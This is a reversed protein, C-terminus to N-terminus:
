QYMGNKNEGVNPNWKKYNRIWNRFASLWNKFKTGKSNHHDLFKAFEEKSISEEKCIELAYTKLLVLYEAKLKNAEVAKQLSFLPQKKSKTKDQEIGDCSPAFTSSIYKDAKPTFCYAPESNKDISELLGAADLEGLANALTRSSIKFRPIQKLIYNKYLVFYNKGDVVKITAYSLRSLQYIAEFIIVSNISINEDDSM